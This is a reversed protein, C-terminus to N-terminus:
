KSVKRWVDVNPDLKKGNLTSTSKITWTKGDDSFTPFTTFEITGDPGFEVHKSIWNGNVKTHTGNGMGGSSLAWMSKVLRANMDYTILQTWSGTGSYGKIILANGDESLTIEQYTTVTEGKKGFGAWDETFTTANVWRGQRQKCFEEFDERTTPKVRTFVATEDPQQEGDWVKNTFKAIFQGKGKFKIQFDANGEKEGVADTTKGIMLTPSLVKGHANFCGMGKSGSLISRFVIGDESIGDWHILETCHILEDEFIDQGTVILCANGADWENTHTGKYNGDVHWRYTGVFNDLFKRVNEPMLNTNEEAFSLGTGFVMGVVVVAFLLRRMCCKREAQSAVTIGVFCYFEIM